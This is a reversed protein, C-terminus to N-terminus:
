LKSQHNKIIKAPVGVATVGDPLDSIVVAGGGVMVDNGIHLHPLVVAGIGVHTRKGITVTGGLHAGPSIHACPGIHCDHDISCATNLTVNEGVVSDSNVIAGAMIASGAGITATKAIVATPHIASILEYGMKQIQDGKEERIRNNGIAIIGQHIGQHRMEDLAIKSNRIEYGMLRSGWRSEDDDVIVINEIGHMTLIDLIVKAHGGAGYVFVPFQIAV